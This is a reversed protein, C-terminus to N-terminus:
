SGDPELLGLLGQVPHLRVLNVGYKAYFKAQDDYRDPEDAPRGGVGWFKVEEGNEFGLSSRDRQVPGFKGAPAHRVQRMDFVSDGSYDDQDPVYPFWTAPGPEFKSRQKPTMSGAPSWDENSVVLADIGAHTKSRNSGDVVVVLEHSGSDLDLSAGGTWM